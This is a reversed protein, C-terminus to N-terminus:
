QKLCHHWPQPILKLSSVLTELEATNQLLNVGHGGPILCLSFPLFFFPFYKTKLIM